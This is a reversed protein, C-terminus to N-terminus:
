AAQLRQLRRVESVLARMDQRAHACFLWDAQYDEYTDGLQILTDGLMAGQRTYVYGDDPDVKIECEDPTWQVGSNLRHEIEKLTDENM